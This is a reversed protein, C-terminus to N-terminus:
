VNIYSVFILPIEATNMEPTCLQNGTIVRSIRFYQNQRVSAYIKLHFAFHVPSNSFGICNGFPLYVGNCSLSEWIFLTGEDPSATPHSRPGQAGPQGLGCRGQGPERAGRVGM